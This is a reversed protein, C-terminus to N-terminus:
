LLSGPESLTESALTSGTDSAASADEGNALPDADTEVSTDLEAAINQKLQDLLSIPNSVDSSATSAVTTDDAAAEEVHEVHVWEPEDQTEDIQAADIEVSCADISYDCEDHEHEDPSGADASELNTADEVTSSEDAPNTLASDSKTSGGNASTTAALVLEDLERVAAERSRMTNTTVHRSLLSAAGVSVPTEEEEHVEEMTPASAGPRLEEVLRGFRIRELILQSIEWSPEGSNELVLSQLPKESSSLDQRNSAAQCQTAPSPQSVDSDSDTSAEENSSGDSNDM